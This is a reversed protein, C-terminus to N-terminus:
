GPDYMANDESLFGTGPAIKPIEADTTKTHREGLSEAHGDAFAVNTKGRHRFGQTGAARDTFAADGPNPFPARMFKNAGAAYQGDGFLACGSANKIQAAQIPQPVSESQGHGVFSTNYNYGTFPDGASNSKGEFSPCQHIEPNTEGQWLLGPKVTTEKTMTDRTSTFDWNYQIALPPRGEFWYAPPFLGSNRATYLNAATVLQRLNSLCTVTKASERAAALTPLLIAILLAIIGIVVLLEILTFASRKM